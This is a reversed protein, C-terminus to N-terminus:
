KSLHYRKYNVIQTAGSGVSFGFGGEIRVVNGEKKLYLFVNKTDNVVIQRVLISPDPLFITLQDIESSPSDFNYPAWALTDIHSASAKIYSHILYGTNFGPNEENGPNQFTFTGFNLFLSDSTIISSGPAESKIQAVLSDVKWTGTTLLDITKEQTTKQDLENCGIFAALVFLVLPMTKKM